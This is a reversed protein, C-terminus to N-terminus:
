PPNAPGRRPHAQPAPAPAPPQTTASAMELCSHAASANPLDDCPWRPAVALEFHDARRDTELSSAVRLECDCLNGIVVVTAVLSRSGSHNMIATTSHGTVTSYQITRGTSACCWCWVGRALWFPFRVHDTTGLPCAKPTAESQKLEEHREWPHLVADKPLCCPLCTRQAKCCM